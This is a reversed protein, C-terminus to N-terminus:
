PLEAAHAVAALFLRMAELGDQAEAHLRAHDLAAYGHAIRNRLGVMARLRGALEVSIQNRSALVDFTGGAEDPAEWGEDALWHAALDVTEQMALFLYFTALDRAEVNLVFAAEPLALRREADALWGSARALKRAVVDRNVM